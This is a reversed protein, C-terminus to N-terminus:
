ETLCISSDEVNFELLIITFTHVSSYKLNFKSVLKSSDAEWGVHIISVSINKKLKKKKVVIFKLLFEVRSKETLLPFAFKQLRNLIYKIKRRSKILFNEGCPDSNITCTFFQKVYINLKKTRTRRNKYVHVCLGVLLQHLVSRILFPLIAHLQQKGKSM